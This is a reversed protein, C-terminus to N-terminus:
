SIYFRPAQVVHCRAETEKMARKLNSNWYEYLWWVENRSMEEWAKPQVSHGTAGKGSGKSAMLREHLTKTQFFNQSAVRRAERDQVEQENLGHKGFASGSRTRAEQTRADEKHRTVAQALRHVWSAFHKAVHELAGNYDTNLLEPTPAWTMGTQWIAIIFNKGGMNSHCWGNFISTQQRWAKQRQESTLESAIWEKQWMTFMNALVDQDHIGRRDDPEVRRRRELIAEWAKQIQQPTKIARAQTKDERPPTIQLLPRRTFFMFMCSDLEAIDVDTCVGKLSNMWAADICNRSTAGTRFEPLLEASKILAFGIATLEDFNKPETEDQALLPPPAESDAEADADDGQPAGVENSDQPTTPDLRPSITGFM